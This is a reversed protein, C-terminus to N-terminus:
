CIWIPFDSPRIIILLFILWKPPHTLPSVSTFFCFFYFSFNDVFYLASFFCASMGVLPKKKKPSNAPLSTLTFIWLNSHLLLCVYRSTIQLFYHRLFIVISSASFNDMFIFFIWLHNTLCQSLSLTLSFVSPQGEVVKIIPRAIDFLCCKGSWITGTDSRTYSHSHTKYFVCMFWADYKYQM